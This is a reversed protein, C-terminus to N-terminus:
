KLDYIFIPLSDICVLMKSNNDVPITNMVMVPWLAECKWRLPTKSNVYKKSLFRGGKQEAIMYMEDISLKRHDHSYKRSCKICWTGTKIHGPTAEWQHGYECQWLLKSSANKYTESLCKGGREHAITRMEDITLKKKSAARICACKKCWRGRKIGTPTAEWQHGNSCEWKLKVNSGSYFDSLCKGNKETALTHMDQISLKSPSM